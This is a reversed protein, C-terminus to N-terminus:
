SGKADDSGKLRNRLRDYEHTLRWREEVLAVRREEPMAALEADIQTLRDRIQQARNM